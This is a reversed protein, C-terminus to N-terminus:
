TTALEAARLWVGLSPTALPKVKLRCESLSIFRRLAVCSPLATPRRQRQPTAAAPQEEGSAGELPLGVLAIRRGRPAVGLGFFFSSSNLPGTPATLPPAHLPVEVEFLVISPEDPEVQFHKSFSLDQLEALGRFEPRQHYELAITMRENEGTKGTRRM